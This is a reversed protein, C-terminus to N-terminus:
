AFTLVGGPGHTYSSKTVSTDDCTVRETGPSSSVTTVIGKSRSAFVEYRQRTAACRELPWLLSSTSFDDADLKVMWGDSATTFVSSYWFKGFGKGAGDLWVVHMYKSRLVPPLTSSVTRSM